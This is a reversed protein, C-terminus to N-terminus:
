RRGCEAPYQRVFTAFDEGVKVHVMGLTDPDPELTWTVARAICTGAHCINAQYGTLAGEHVDSTVKYETVCPHEDCVDTQFRATVVGKRVDVHLSGDGFFRGYTQYGGCLLPVHVAGHACASAFVAIVVARM